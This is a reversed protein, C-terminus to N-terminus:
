RGISEAFGWLINPKPSFYKFGLKLWYKRLFDATKEVSRQKRQDINDAKPPMPIATVVDNGQCFAELFKAIAKPGLNHGRYAHGIECNDIHWIRQVMNDELIQNPSATMQSGLQDKRNIEFTETESVEKSFYEEKAETSAFYLPVRGLNRDIGDTDSLFGVEPDIYEQTLPEANYSIIRLKGLPNKEIFREMEEYEADLYEDEEEPLNEWEMMNFLTELDSVKLTVDYQLFYYDLERDRGMAIAIKLYFHEYKSIWHGLNDETLRIPKKDAEERIATTEQITSM